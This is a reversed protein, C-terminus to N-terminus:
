AELPHTSPRLPLHGESLALAVSFLAALRGPPALVELPGSPSPFALAPWNLANAVPTSTMLRDTAHSTGERYDRVVDDLRPAPGPFVPGVLVDFARAHEIFSERWARMQKTALDVDGIPRSLKRQVDEGYLHPTTRFRAAHVAWAAQKFLTWHAEPLAGGPIDKTTCVRLSSVPPLADLQAIRILDHPNRALYGLSDYPVALPQVGTAPQGGTLKLGWVGCCAAPIRISGSTDTGIAVRCAGIAVAVASGGSSGGATRSRDFPNLMAGFGPNYGSVGFAFENLNTKGIVVAGRRELNTM